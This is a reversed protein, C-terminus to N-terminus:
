MRFYKQCTQRGETQKERNREVKKYQEFQFQFLKLCYWRNVTCLCFWFWFDKMLWAFLAECCGFSLSMVIFFLLLFLFLNYFPLIYVNYVNKTSCTLWKNQGGAWHVSFSPFVSQRSFHGAVATVPICELRLAILHWSFEAATRHCLASSSLSDASLSYGKM